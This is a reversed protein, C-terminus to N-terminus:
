DFLISEVFTEIEGRVREFTWMKEEYEVMMHPIGEKELEERFLVYDFLAPECFKATCFLVADAGTRRVKEVLARARPAPGDHCVSSYDSGSLYSEALRRLPSGDLPIPGSFWRWGKVLDDDVISCGAEEVTDLFELPPPECFSGELLVRIKDRSPSSRRAVADLANRLLSQSRKVPLCTVARGLINLEVTSLLEPQRCRLTYLESLLYRCENYAAISDMLQSPTIKRRTLDELKGQVRRLEAEYYDVAAPSSPNQPFHIYEIWLKPFNRKFVSSLNRAVDCISHFFLADFSDLHKQFGLELTSKAISCVFSVFRADATMISVQDGGGFIGVPLAEAATILEIPSYVPFCGVVRGDPHDRKWDNVPQDWPKLVMPRLEQVIDEMVVNAM